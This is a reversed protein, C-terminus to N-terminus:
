PQGGNEIPSTAADIAAVVRRTRDHEATLRAKESAPVRPNGLFTSTTDASSAWVDRHEAHFTAQPCRAADCLGALPKDATPTGALKLCLAKAPDTFWCYNAPQIHLSGARKKLLLEIHRDTAVVIPQGAEHKALEADVHQFSAILDAAGPGAPLKGQQYDRYAAATLQRKHAQEERKMEGHLQAQAGGPRGSYGETTAVHLHKLHVKAAWLGHPRCAMDKSLTRRLMAGNVPGDPIPDLGLRIGAPGNVWRRFSSFRSSLNFRSFVSKQPDYNNSTFNLQAALRTALEVARYAPEIVVWEDRVGGWEQGKILKSALRYRVLGESIQEPPLCSSSTLEMLESARMGTIATTTFLAANFVTSALFHAQHATLPATWPVRGSGDAREVPEADRAWLPALGVDAVADEIPERCRRIESARLQSVRLDHALEGFSVRLLPDHAAWGRELRGRVHFDDIEPLSRRSARYRALLATLEERQPIGFNASAGTRREALHEVLAAVHPGITGVLYLGARLAPVLVTDPIAPTTNEPSRTYEAIAAASKGKWPMFGAAYRDATFLGTYRALDKVVTIELCLTSAALGADRREKLRRDCHEQTVEALDHVGEGALWNLWAVADTLRYNCSLLSLATRRAWPLHAVLEHHPARLAVLFERLVTRWAPRAIATFDWLLLCSQVQVPKKLVGSLDWVDDDFRPHPGAPGIDLRLLEEVLRGAFPSRATPDAHISTTM